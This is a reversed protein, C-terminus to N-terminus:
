TQCDWSSQLLGLKVRRKGVKFSKLNIPSTGVHSCNKGFNKCQSLSHFKVSKTDFPKAM